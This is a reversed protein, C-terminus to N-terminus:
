QLLRYRCTELLSSAAASSRVAPNTRGIAGPPMKFHACRDGRYIQLAESSLDGELVSNSDVRIIRHERDHGEIAQDEFMGHGLHQLTHLSRYKVILRGCLFYLNAGSRDQRLFNAVAAGRKPLLKVLREFPRATGTRGRSSRFM